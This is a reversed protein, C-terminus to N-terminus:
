YKIHSPSFVAFITVDGIFPDKKLNLTFHDIINTGSIALPSISLHQRSKRREVDKGSGQRKKNLAIHSKYRISSGYIYSCVVIILV